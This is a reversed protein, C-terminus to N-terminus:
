IIKRERKQSLYPTSRGWCIAKKGGGGSPEGRAQSRRRIAFIQPSGGGGRDRGGWFVRKKEGKM